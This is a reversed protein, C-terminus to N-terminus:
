AARPDTALAQREPSCGSPRHPRLEAEPFGGDYDDYAKLFGCIIDDRMQLEGIAHIADIFAREGGRTPLAGGIDFSRVGNINEALLVLLHDLRYGAGTLYPMDTVSISGLLQTATERGQRPTMTIAPNDTFELAGNIGLTSGSSTVAGGEVGLGSKTSFSTTIGSVEVFQPAEAYRMRVINLLLEENMVQRVAKNYDVHSNIILTPGNTCAALGLLMLCCILNRMM